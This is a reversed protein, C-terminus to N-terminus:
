ADSGGGVLARKHLCVTWMADVADRRPMLAVRYGDAFKQKILRERERKRPADWSFFEHWAATVDAAYVRGGPSMALQIQVVCGCAHRLVWDCEALPVAAGDLEVLLKM